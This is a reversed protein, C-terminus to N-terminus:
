HRARKDKGKGKPIVRASYAREAKEIHDRLLNIVAHPQEIAVAYGAHQVTKYTVHTIVQGLRKYAAVNHPQDEDGALILVPVAIKQLESKSITQRHFIQRANELQEPSLSLLHQMIKERRAVVLPDKSARFSEGFNSNAFATMGSKAGTKKMSELFRDMEKIGQPTESEAIAGILTCSKLLDPRLVALNLAVYAGLCNGVFHCPEIKLNEILEAADKTTTLLDTKKSAHWSQGQGRHDYTIVRYEDSLAAVMPDFVTTDMYLLSSFIIAPAEKPGHDEYYIETGNLKM